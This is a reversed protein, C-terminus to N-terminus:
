RNLWRTMLETYIETAQEIRELACWEDTKHAQEIEGPGLIVTPPGGLAPKLFSADTFYPAAAPRPTSGCIRAVTEFVEGVWSEAPETAIGRGAELREIEVEDGLAWRLQAQVEDPEQGPITRIDISFVTADPVSNINMGGQITGVNLTPRGLLPHPALGFEFSRLKLVAEAAKYIANDGEEPISAHATIGRTRVLFRVCGKHALLPANGSPEGVVLAGARPLVGLGVLQRAGDCYTEEGATLVLLLGARRSRERAARGAAVVMAALAAKMDTTGRGYLRGDGIEGAFPDVSWDAAGLPVVDFHGTFCLPDGEGALSAVLTTRGPAFEYRSIEFGLPELWGGVLEACARERGPPNITDIAVLARTREIVDALSM